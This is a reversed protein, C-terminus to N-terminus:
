RVQWQQAQRDERGGPRRRQRRGAHDRRDDRAEALGIVGADGIHYWRPKSRNRYIVMWIKRGSPRVRLALGRAHTDWILYAVAKPQAQRVIIETLKRKNPHTARRM